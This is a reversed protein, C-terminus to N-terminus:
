AAPEDKDPLDDSTELVQLIEKELPKIGFDRAVELLGRPSVGSILTLIGTRCNTVPMFMFM